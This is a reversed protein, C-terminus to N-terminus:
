KRDNVFQHIFYRLIQVSQKQPDTSIAFPILAIFTHTSVLFKLRPLWSIFYTLKLGNINKEQNELRFKQEMVQGTKWTFRLGYSDM